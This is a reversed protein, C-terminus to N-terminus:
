SEGRHGETRHPWFGGNIMLSLAKQITYENQIAYLTIAQKHITLFQLMTINRADTVHQNNDTQRNDVYTQRNDVLTQTQDYLNTVQPPPTVQNTIHNFIYQVPNQQTSMLQATNDVAIRHKKLEAAHLEMTKALESSCKLFDADTTQEGSGGGGPQRPTPTGPPPQMAQIVAKLENLPVEAKVSINHTHINAQREANINNQQETLQQELIKYLLSDVVKAATLDPLNFSHQTVAERQATFLEYRRRLGDILAAMNILCLSGRPAGGCFPALPAHLRAGELRDKEIKFTNYTQARQIATRLANAEGFRKHHEVNQARITHAMMATRKLDLKRPVKKKM